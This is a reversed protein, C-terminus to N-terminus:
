HVMNDPSKGLNPTFDNIFDLLIQQHPAGLPRAQQLHHSYAYGQQIEEVSVLGLDQGEQLDLKDLTVTLPAHFVHRVVNRNPPYFRFKHITNPHYSIEERLERLIGLEPPEGPELHGGFFGWHGAYLIGPIDDRLQMLFKNDQYLIAIAVNVLGSESAM